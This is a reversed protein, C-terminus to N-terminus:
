AKHTELTNMIFIRMIVLIMETKQIAETESSLLALHGLWGKGM